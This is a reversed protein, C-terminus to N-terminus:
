NIRKKDAKRPLHVNKMIYMQLKPKIYNEFYDNYIGMLQLKSLQTIVYVRTKNAVTVKFKKSYKENDIIKRWTKRDGIGVYEALSSVTFKNKRIEQTM